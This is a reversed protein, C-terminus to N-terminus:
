PVLIPRSTTALRTPLLEKLKAREVKTLRGRSAPTGGPGPRRIVPPETCACPDDLIQFAEDEAIALIANKVFECAHNKTRYWEVLDPLLEIAAPGIRKLPATALGLTYPRAVGTV